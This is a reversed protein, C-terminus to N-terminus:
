DPIHGYGELTFDDFDFQFIKKHNPEFDNQYHNQNEPCNCSLNNRINNYFTRGFTHIFEGALDFKRLWWLLYHMPRSISRSELFIDASRQYLQCSLKGNAVYFQFFPL